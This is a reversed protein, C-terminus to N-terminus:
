GGGERKKKGMEHRLKQVQHRGQTTFALANQKCGFPDGERWGDFKETHEASRRSCQGYTGSYQVSRVFLPEFLRQQPVDHPGRKMTRSICFERVVFALLFSQM